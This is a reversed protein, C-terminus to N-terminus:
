KHLRVEVKQYLRELEKDTVEGRWTRHVLGAIFDAMQILNSRSSDNFNLERLGGQPLFQRIYSKISHRLFRSNAGDLRVRSQPIYSAFTQLTTAIFWQYSDDTLQKIETVGFASKDFILAYAQFQLNVLTNAIQVRRALNMKGFKFEAPHRMTQHLQELTMEADEAAQNDAFVVLAVVFFRSSNKDFKFGADGSEDVFVLV